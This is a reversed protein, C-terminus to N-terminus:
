IVSLSDPLSGGSVTNGVIWVACASLAAGFFVALMLRFTIYRLVARYLGLAAFAGLAVVVAVVYIWGRSGMVASLRDYQLWFGAVLSAALIATDAAVMLSRKVGRPLGILWGRVVQLLGLFKSPM